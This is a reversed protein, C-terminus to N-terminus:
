TCEDSSDNGILPPIFLFEPPEEGEGVEPLVVHYLLRNGNGRWIDYKATIFMNPIVVRGEADSTYTAIQADFAGSYVPPNKIQVYINVDPELNGYEDYVDLIGTITPNNPNGASPYNILELQYSLEEDGDVVIGEDILTFYGVAKISVSWTGPDVVFSVVGLVDTIKTETEGSRYFRVKAGEIPNSDEDTVTIVVNHIGIDIDQISSAIAELSETQPTYDGAGTGWNSNIRALMASLNTSIALDKRALLGAIQLIKYFDATENIVHVYAPICIIDDHEVWFLVGKEYEYPTSGFPDFALNPADLRYQGIGVHKFGGSVFGTSLTALNVLTIAVPEAGEFRYFATLGSTNWVFDTRPQFTYKDFIRLQVPVSSSGRIIFKEQM